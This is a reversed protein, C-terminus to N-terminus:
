QAPAAVLPNLVRIGAFRTMDRDASWLTKVGHQRCVAFIRADHAMAGLVRGSLMAAKLVSWYGTIEGIVQLAPSELWDDVQQLAHALPTPPSYVKPHTVIALFEHICPWPIAWPSGSEALIRLRDVSANHWPSEKRHVYVLINTDVAIV